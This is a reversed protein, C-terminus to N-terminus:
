TDFHPSDYSVWMAHSNWKVRGLHYLTIDIPNDVAGHGHCAVKERDRECLCVCVCVCVTKEKKTVDNEGPYVVLTIADFM